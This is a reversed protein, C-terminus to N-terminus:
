QNKKVKFSLLALSGENCEHLLRRKHFLGSDTGSEKQPKHEIEGSQKQDCGADNEREIGPEANRRDTRQRLHEIPDAEGVVGAPDTAETQRGSVKQM